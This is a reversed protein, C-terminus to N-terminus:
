PRQSAPPTVANLRAYVVMQGYIDWTHGLLFWLVRARTSPGMFAATVPEQLSQNSQEKILAIAYDFSDNMAKISADKNLAAAKADVTPATAKGGMFGLFRNSVTAVHVVREGFSQQEPTPKFTYKDAPVASALKAMTDKLSTWDKLMDGQLSPPPGAAAPAQAFAPAAFAIVACALVFMRIAHIV